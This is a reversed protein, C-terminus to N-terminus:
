VMAMEAEEEEEEQYEAVHTSLEASVLDIAFFFMSVFVLYGCFLSDTSLLLVVVTCLSCCCLLHHELSQRCSINNCGKVRREIAGSSDACLPLLSNPHFLSWMASDLLERFAFNQYISPYFSNAICLSPAWKPMTFSSVKLCPNKKEGGFFYFLIVAKL